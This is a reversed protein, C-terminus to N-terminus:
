KFYETYDIVQETVQPGQPIGVERGITALTEKKNRIFAKLVSDKQKPTLNPDGLTARLTEGEKATFAAGFTQKLLPLIENDVTAIYETRAIAGETPELGLERMAIDAAQGAYTYTAKKGLDSLREVTRELQPLSAKREKLESVRAARSKELERQAVAAAEAPAMGRVEEAGIQGLAAGFGSIPAARGTTPDLQLGRRMLAEEPTARKVGLYTKQEEPTLGAYYQYERVASPLQAEQFSPDMMQQTKARYQAIQEGLLQRQLADRERRSVRAYNTDFQQRVLEGLQPRGRFVDGRM